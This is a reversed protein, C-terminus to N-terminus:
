ESPAAPPPASAPAAAKRKAANAFLRDLAGGIVDGVPQPRRMAPAAAKVAEEARRHEADAITELTEATPGLAAEERNIKVFQGARADGYRMGPRVVMVVKDLDSTDPNSYDYIKTTM